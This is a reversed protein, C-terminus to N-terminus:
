GRYQAQWDEPRISVKFVMWKEKAAMEEKSIKILSDYARSVIQSQRLIADSLESNFGAFGDGLQYLKQLSQEQKALQNNAKILEVRIKNWQTVLGKYHQMNTAM